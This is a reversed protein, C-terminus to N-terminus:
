PDECFSDHRSNCTKAAAVPKPTLEQLKSADAKFKGREKWIAPKAFQANAPATGLMGCAFMAAFLKKSHFTASNM